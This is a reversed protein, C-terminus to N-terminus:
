PPFRLYVTCYSAGATLRKRWGNGKDKVLPVDSADSNDGPYAITLAFCTVTVIRDRADGKRMSLIRAISEM